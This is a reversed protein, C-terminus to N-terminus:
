PRRAQSRRAERSGPPFQHLQVSFRGFDVVVLRFRVQEKIRFARLAPDGTGVAAVTEDATISELAIADTERLEARGHHKARLSVRLRPGKSLREGSGCGNRMGPVREIQPAAFRPHRAEFGRRELLIKPFPFLDSVLSVCLPFKRGESQESLFAALSITGRM